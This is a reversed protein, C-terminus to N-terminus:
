VQTSITGQRDRQQLLCGDMVDQGRQEMQKWEPLCMEELKKNVSENSKVVKLHVSAGSPATKTGSTLTLTLEVANDKLNELYQVAPDTFEGKYGCELTVLSAIAPQASLDLNPPCPYLKELSTVGTNGFDIYELLYRNKQVNKRQCLARYHLGDEYLAIVVQGVIPPETLPTASRGYLVTDQLVTDYLKQSAMDVPRVFARDLSMADVLFVTSNNSLDPRPVEPVVIPPPTAASPSASAVQPKVEEIEPVFRTIQGEGASAGTDVNRLSVKFGGPISSVLTGNYNQGAEIGPGKLLCTFEPIQEYKAPLPKLQCKDTIPVMKGADILMMKTPSLIRARYWADDSPNLYAVLDGPSPPGALEGDAQIACLKEYEREFSESMCLCLCLLGSPVSSEPMLVPTLGIKLLDIICNKPVVKKPTAGELNGPPKYGNVKPKPPEAEKPAPKPQEAPPTSTPVAVPTAQAPKNKNDWNDHGNQNEHRLPPRQGQNANGQRNGYQRNNSGQTRDGQRNGQFRDGQGTRDGQSRDRPARDGQSRDRPARDGQSRDRQARDGARNNRQGQNFSRGQRNNNQMPTNKQQTNKHGRDSGSDDYRQADRKPSHPRRLPATPPTIEIDEAVNAETDPKAASLRALNHCVARHREAWDLRQCRSSCYPTLGCRSCYSDAASGCAVCARSAVRQLAPITLSDGAGAAFSGEVDRSELNRDNVNRVVIRGDPLICRNSAISQTVGVNKKRAAELQLLQQQLMMSQEQVKLRQLELQIGKMKTEPDLDDDLTPMATEDMDEGNIMDDHRRFSRERSSASANDDRNNRRPGNGFNDRSNSNKNKHAITINLRLPDTNNLKTMALKAEGPTEYRVLAYKKAPDKSVYVEHLNGYKSFATRIGDENLANPINRIYLRCHDLQVGGSVNDDPYQPDYSSNNYEDRMLDWENNNNSRGRSTM